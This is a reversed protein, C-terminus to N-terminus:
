ELRVKARLFEFNRPPVSTYFLWQNTGPINSFGDLADWVTLPLGTSNELSYIRTVGQYGIGTAGRTQVAFLVASNTLRIDLLFRDNEKGPDTGATYEEGNPAGDDDHDGEAPEGTGNLFEMEWADPMGDEDLDLTGAPHVEVAGLAYRGNADEGASQIRVGPRGGEVPNLIGVRLSYSGTSVDSITFTETNSWAQGPIVARLDFGWTSTWVPSGSPGCLALEVPFQHICPASGSNTLVLTVQFPLDPEVDDPWDARTIHYNYGLARKIHQLTAASGSQEHAGAPGLFSFHYSRIVTILDDTDNIWALKQSDLPSEGSIPNSLWNDVSSTTVNRFCYDLNWDGSDDCLPFGYVCPATFSPFYDEHFGFEVGSADPSRPYRTQLPTRTFAAAYADRVATKAANEPAHSDCGSQHWEGWLGLIGVQIATIRPDGDYQAAIAHVLQTMQVIMDPDNWDPTWGPGDGDCDAYLWNSISLPPEILFRPFDRQLEGGSYFLAIGSNEGDPYDAVPRLVFTANSYDNLIPALHNSEFNSWAFQQDATEVERWPMYVHFIRSGHYNDPAGAAYDTGWLMFGKHPNNLDNTVVPPSVTGAPAPLVTFANLLVSAIFFRIHQHAIKM